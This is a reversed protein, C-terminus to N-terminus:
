QSLALDKIAALSKRGMFRKLADLNLGKLEQSLFTKSEDISGGDHSADAGQDNVVSNIESWQTQSAHTQGNLRQAAGVIRKRFPDVLSLIMRPLHLRSFNAAEEEILATINAIEVLDAFFNPLRPLRGLALGNMGIFRDLRRVRQTTNRLSKARQEVSESRVPEGQFTLDIGGVIIREDLGVFSPNIMRSIEVAAMDRASQIAPFDVKCRHGVPKM